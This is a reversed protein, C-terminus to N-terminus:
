LVPGRAPLRARQILGGKGGDPLSFLGEVLFAVLDHQAENAHRASRLVEPPVASGLLMAGRSLLLERRLLGRGALHQLAASQYIRLDQWVSAISPLRVFSREPRAAEIERVQRKLENPLSMRHLLSPYLLFMDLIRLREIQMGDGTADLLRVM